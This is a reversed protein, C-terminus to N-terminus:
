LTNKADSQLRCIPLNRIPSRPILCTRRTKASRTSQDCGPARQKRWSKDSLLHNWHRLGGTNNQESSNEDRTQSCHKARILRVHLQEPRVTGGVGRPGFVRVLRGERDPRGRGVLGVAT